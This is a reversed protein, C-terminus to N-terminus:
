SQVPVQAWFRKNLVGAGEIQDIWGQFPPRGLNDVIKAVKLM